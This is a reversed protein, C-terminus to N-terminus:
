HGAKWARRGTAAAKIQALTAEGGKRGFPWLCPRCATGPSEQQGIQYCLYQFFKSVAPKQAFFYHGRIPFDAKASRQGSHRSAPLLGAADALSGEVSGVQGVKYRGEALAAAGSGPRAVVNLVPALRAPGNRWDETEVALVGAKVFDAEKTACDIDIEVCAGFGLLLSDAEVAGIRGAGGPRLTAGYEMEIGGPFRGGDSELSAFRNLWVRSSPMTGDFRLTGAWVETPGTHAQEVGPLVLTGDGQKVLRTEGAFGGGTLTHTYTTTSINDNDDHGEVWTPANDTFVYPSAGDAVSVTMDGTECMMIHLGDHEKGIASGNAIETRGAMTLPPPAITIGEMEGLYYSPHPPQNYGCMQWVMAQRYQFDHWLTYNRWPTEVNTTYIRINNNATRMIVEERWDGFVDGQYCPTGKTDNNTMSGSLIAIQGKTASIITGETNKGSRYNFTEECLDGDWYIRFNDAISFSSKDYGVVAAHSAAGILHPDRASIGQAGPIDRVFKGMMGRGDDDSAQYRYYIKSTTADRFNNGPRSENCCFIEQGFTYPDFDSCHQADGDPGDDVSHLVGLDLVHVEPVDDSYRGQVDREIGVILIM